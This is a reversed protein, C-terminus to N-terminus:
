SIEPSQEIALARWPSKQDGWGSTSADSHMKAQQAFFLWSSWSGGSPNKIRGPLCPFGEMGRGRGRGGREPSEAIASASLAPIYANAKSDRTEIQPNPTDPLYPTSATSGIVLRTNPLARSDLLVQYNSNQIYSLCFLNRKLIFPYPERQDKKKKEPPPTRPHPSPIFREGLLSAPCPAGPRLWAGSGDTCDVRQLHLGAHQVDARRRSHARPRLPPSHALARPARARGPAHTHARTLTGRGLFAWHAGWACASGMWCWGPTPPPVAAPLWPCLSVSTDAAICIPSPAACAPSNLPSPTGAHTHMHTAIHYRKERAAEKSGVERRRKRGGAREGSGNLRTKGGRM